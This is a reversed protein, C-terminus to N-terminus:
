SYLKLLAICSTKTAFVTKLIHVLSANLLFFDKDDNKLFVNDFRWIFLEQCENQDFTAQWVRASFAVM